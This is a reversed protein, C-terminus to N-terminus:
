FVAGERDRLALEDRLILFGPDAAIGLKVQAGHIQTVIFKIPGNAFLQAVPTQPDINEALQIRIIQGPRRTLILMRGGTNFQANESLYLFAPALRGRGM